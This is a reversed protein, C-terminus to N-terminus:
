FQFLEAADCRAHGGCINCFRLGAFPREATNETQQNKLRRMLRAQALSALLRGANQRMWLRLVQARFRCFVRNRRRRAQFAQRRARM